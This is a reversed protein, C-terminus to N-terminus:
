VLPAGLGQFINGEVNNSPRKSGSEKFREGVKTRPLYSAGEDNSVDFESTSNTGSGGCDRLYVLSTAPEPWQGNNLKEELLIHQESIFNCQTLTKTMDELLLPQRRNIFDWVRINEIEVGLLPCIKEVAQSLRTVKSFDRSVVPTALSYM